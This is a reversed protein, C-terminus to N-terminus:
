ANRRDALLIERNVSEEFQIPDPVALLINETMPEGTAIEIGEIECIGNEGGNARASGGKHSRAPSLPERLRHILIGRLVVVVALLPLARGIKKPTHSVSVGCHPCVAISGTCGLAPGPGAFSLFSIM